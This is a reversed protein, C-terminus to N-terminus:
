EVFLFGSSNLLAWITTRAANEPDNVFEDLLLSREEPSPKKSLMALYLADCKEEPTQAKKLQLSLSSSPSALAKFVEGNLLSLAQPVSASDSSNDIIDRDSQGFESLFHGPRTPSPLESARVFQHASRERRMRQMFDHAAERGEEKRIRQLEKKAKMMRRRNKNRPNQKIGTKNSAKRSERRLEPFAKGLRNVLQGPGNTIPSNIRPINQLNDGLFALQAYQRMSNARLESLETMAKRGIKIADPDGESQLTIARDVQERVGSLEKRTKALLKSLERTNKLISEPTEKELSRYAALRPSVEQSDQEPLTLTGDPDPRVLTVVSDWIEEASMRRLRPGPFYYPERSAMDFTSVERSYVQTKYLIRYYAQIDFDLEVFLSTLYDLLKPNSPKDVVDLNDVPEFVGVGMIRKWLRNAIIKTFRPNSRATMWEAYAHARSENKNLDVVDGFPTSPDIIAKPEADEYQYDDPLRLPKNSEYIITNQLPATINRLSRRSNKRKKLPQGANKKLLNEKLGPPMNTVQQASSFAALKYFDMQSWEEFPHDHCQACLMQTGLFVQVTASMHDLPMGRDRLYFGVAGNEDILGNATVLERVFVDYPKNDALAKKLWQVYLKASDGNNGRLRSKVRLLDAWFHFEHSVYGPSGVLSDILRARKEPSTDKFFTRAEGATPIRGMVDLYIRRLFTADDAPANPSVGHDAYGATILADIKRSAEAPDLPAAASPAAALLITIIFHKM